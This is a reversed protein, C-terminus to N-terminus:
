ELQMMLETQLDLIEHLTDKFAERVGIEKTPISRRANVVSLILENLGRIIMDPSYWPRKSAWWQQCSHQSRDLMVRAVHFYQKQEKTTESQYQEATVVLSTTKMIMKHQLRHIPNDPHYWLPFGAKHNIDEINTSWSSPKPEIVELHKFKEVLEGITVMRVDTAQKLKKLMPNLFKEFAHRIHHGYTEGDQSIIVYYDEDTKRYKIREFFSEGDLRDFSIDNSITDDRFVVALEEKTKHFTTTPFIHHPNGIPSMIFWDYGADKIPQFIEPSVAMEPPFFGTPQYVAGFYKRNTEENLTIQRKIEPKPILPLLAHYKASGTFEVKKIDALSTLDNIIDDLGYDNFHETLVANINITVKSHSHEKLSKILPRYSENAIKKIIQPLQVPPQYLHLLFAFYVTM